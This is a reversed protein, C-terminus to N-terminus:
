LFDGEPHHVIFLTDWNVLSRIVVKVDGDFEIVSWILADRFLDAPPLLIFGHNPDLSMM